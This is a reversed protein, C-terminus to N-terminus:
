CTDWFFVKETSRFQEESRSQGKVRKKKFNLRAVEVSRRPQGRRTLKVEWSDAFEQINRYLEVMLDLSNLLEAETRKVAGPHWRCRGAIRYIDVKKKNSEL